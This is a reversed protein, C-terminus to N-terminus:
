WDISGVFEDVVQNSLKKDNYFNIGETDLGMSKGIIDESVEMRQNGVLISEDKWTEIFHQTIAPNSGKLKEM